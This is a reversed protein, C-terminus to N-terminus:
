LKDRFLLELKDEIGENILEKEKEDILKDL